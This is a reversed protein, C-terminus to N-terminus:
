QPRCQLLLTIGQSPFHVTLMARSDRTFLLHAQNGTANDRYMWYTGHQNMRDQGDGVYVETPTVLNRASAAVLVRKGSHPQPSGAGRSIMVPECVLIDQAFASATCAVTMAMGILFKKM